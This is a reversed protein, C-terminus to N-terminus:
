RKQFQSQKPPTPLVRRIPERHERAAPRAQEVIPASEVWPTQQKTYDTHLSTFYNTYARKM